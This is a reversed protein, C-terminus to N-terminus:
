YGNTSKMFNEVLQRWLLAFLSVILINVGILIRIDNTFMRSIFQVTRQTFGDALRSSLEIAKMNLGTTSINSMYIILFGVITALAVPFLSSHFFRSLFGARKMGLKKCVGDMTRRYAPLENKLSLLSNELEVLVRYSAKCSECRKIHESVLAREEESLSGEVYEVLMEEIRECSSEDM